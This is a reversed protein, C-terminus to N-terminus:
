WFSVDSIGETYYVHWLLVCILIHVYVCSHDKINHQKSALFFFCCDVFHFKMYPITKKCPLKHSQFTKCIFHVLM